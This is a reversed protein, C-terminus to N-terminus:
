GSRKLRGTRKAFREARLFCAFGLPITVAGIALLPLLDGAIGAIGTGSLIAARMAELAYYAPSAVALAQMWGPLVTIPYYIGSVLLLTASIIATM